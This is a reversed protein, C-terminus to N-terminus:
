PECVCLVYLVSLACVSLSSARMVHLETERKLLSWFVSVHAALPKRMYLIDRPPPVYTYPYTPPFEVTVLLRFGSRGMPEGYGQHLPLPGLSLRMSRCMVDVMEIDVDRLRGQRALEEM